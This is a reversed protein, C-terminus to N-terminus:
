YTIEPNGRRIATTPSEINAPEIPPPATEYESANRFLRSCIRVNGSSVIRHGPCPGSVVTPSSFACLGNKVAHHSDPRSDEDSHQSNGARERGGVSLISRLRPGHNNSPVSNHRRLM